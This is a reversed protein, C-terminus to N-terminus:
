EELEERGMDITPDVPVGLCQLGKFLVLGVIVGFLWPNM